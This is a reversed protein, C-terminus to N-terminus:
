YAFCYRFEHYNICGAQTGTPPWAIEKWISGQTANLNGYRNISNNLMPIGTTQVFLHVYPWTIVLIEQIPLNGCKRVLPAGRYLGKSELVLVVVLVVNECWKRLLLVRPQILTMKAPFLRFHFHLPPFLNWWIDSTKDKRPYPSPWTYGREIFIFTRDKRSLFTCHPKGPHILVSILLTAPWKQEWIPVTDWATGAAM